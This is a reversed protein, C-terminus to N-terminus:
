QVQEDVEIYLSGTPKKIKSNSFDQNAELGVGAINLDKGTIRVFQDSYIKGKEQDWILQETKLTDGNQNVAVVNNRAEWRKEKSFFKAYDSKISATIRMKTDYKEIHVGLPYEFYPPDAESYMILKPANMKYIIITSDSALTEVNEIVISPQNHMDALENVKKMDSKCSSLLVAIGTTLIAISKILNLKMLKNKQESLRQKM